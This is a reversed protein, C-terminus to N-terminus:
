GGCQFGSPVDLCFAPDPDFNWSKGSELSVLTTLEYFFKEYFVRQFFVVRKKGAVPV